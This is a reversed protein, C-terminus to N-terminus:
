EPTDEDAATADTTDVPEAAPAVDAPAADTGRLVEAIRFARDLSDDYVWRLEPAVKMDLERAISHRMYGAAGRLIKLTIARQAEDGMVSFHVRAASLDAATDVGTVTVLGLRPDKVDKL